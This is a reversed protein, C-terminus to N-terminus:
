HRHVKAEKEQFTTYSCKTCAWHPVGAWPRFKMDGYDKGGPVPEAAPQSTMMRNAYTIGPREPTVSLPKRAGPKKIM